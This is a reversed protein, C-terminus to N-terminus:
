SLKLLNSIGEKEPLCVGVFGVLCLVSHNSIGEKEPLCVGKEEM